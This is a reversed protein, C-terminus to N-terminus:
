IFYHMYLTQCMFFNLIFTSLIVIKSNDYASLFPSWEEWFLAAPSNFVLSSEKVEAFFLKKFGGAPKPIM